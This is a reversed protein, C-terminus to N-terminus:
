SPKDLIVDCATASNLIGAFEGNEDYVSIIIDESSM